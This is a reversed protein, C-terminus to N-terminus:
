LKAKIRNQAQFFCAPCRDLGTIAPKGCGVLAFAAGPPSLLLAGCPRNRPDILPFNPKTSFAVYRKSRHEERWACKDCRHMVHSGCYMCTPM